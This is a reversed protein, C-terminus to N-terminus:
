FPKNKYSHFFYNYNNFYNGKELNQYNKLSFVLVCDFSKSGTDMLASASFLLLVRCYWVSDPPLVFEGPQVGSQRVFVLDIRHNGYFTKKQFPDCYTRQVGEYQTDWLWITTCVLTDRANKHPTQLELTELM